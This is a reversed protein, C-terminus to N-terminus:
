VSLPAGMRVGFVDAVTGMVQTMTAGINVYHAYEFIDLIDTNALDTEDGTGALSSKKIRCKSYRQRMWMVLRANESEADNSHNGTEPDRWHKAHIVPPAHKMGLEDM